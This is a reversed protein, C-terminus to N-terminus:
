LPSLGTAKRVVREPPKGKEPKPSNTDTDTGRHRAVFIGGSHTYFLSIFDINQCIKHTNLETFLDWFNVMLGFLLRGYLWIRGLPLSILINAWLFQFCPIGKLNGALFRSYVITLLYFFTYPKM